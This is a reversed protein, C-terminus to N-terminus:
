QDDEEGQSPLASFELPATVADGERTDVTSVRARDQLRQGISLVETRTRALKLPLGGDCIGREACNGGARMTRQMLEELRGIKQKTQALHSLPM